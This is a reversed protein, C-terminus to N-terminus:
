AARLYGGAGLASEGLVELARDLVPDSGAPNDAPITVAIDPTIGVRHIWHKDPTLWKSVTLKVGGLKDLPLWQQVTGKGFSTEGILQARLRDQLAGAV